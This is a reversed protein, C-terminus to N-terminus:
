RQCAEGSATVTDPTGADLRQKAPLTYTTGTSPDVWPWTDSGFFAPKCSLYMSNPLRASADTLWTQKGLYSDWNGDRIATAAVELDVTYPSLDNWGMLWIAPGWAGPTTASDMYGNAATALGQQGLVNGLYTMWYSYTM